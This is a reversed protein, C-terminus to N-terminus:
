SLELLMSCRNWIWKALHREQNKKKLFFFSKPSTTEDPCHKRLIGQYCFQELEAATPAQDIRSGHPTAATSLSSRKTPLNNTLLGEHRPTGSSFQLFQTLSCFQQKLKM